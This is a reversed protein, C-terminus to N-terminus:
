QAQKIRVPLQWVRIKLPTRKYILAQRPIVIISIYNIEDPYATAPMKVRARNGLEPLSQYRDFYGIYFATDQPNFIPYITSVELTDLIPNSPHVYTWISDPFLYLHHIGNQISDPRNYLTEAVTQEKGRVIVYYTYPADDESDPIRVTAGGNIKKLRWELSSASKDIPEFYLSRWVQGEWDKTIIGTFNPNVTDKILITEGRIVTWSLSDKTTWGDGFLMLTDTSNAANVSVDDIYAGEAVGSDDTKFRFRIRTATKPITTDISKYNTDTGTKVWATKWITDYYELYITDNTEIDRWNMFTVRPFEYDNLDVNREMWNDQNNAYMANPTCKVSYPKSQSRASDEIRTWPDGTGGTTWDDPFNTMDDKWITVRNIPIITDKRYAQVSDIGIKVVGAIKSILEVTATTDLIFYLNTDVRTSNVTIQFSVPWYAQKIKWEISRLESAPFVKSRLFKVTDLTSAFDLRSLFGQWEGQDHSSIVQHISATDSADGTWFKEPPLRGCGIAILGITFALLTIRRLRLIAYEILPLGENEGDKRIESSSVFPKGKDRYRKM